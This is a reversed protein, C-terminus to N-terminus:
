QRRSLLEHFINKTESRKTLSDTKEEVTVSIEIWEGFALGLQILEDTEIEVKNGRKNTISSKLVLRGQGSPASLETVYGKIVKISRRVRPRMRSQTHQRGVSSLRSTRVVGSQSYWGLDVDIGSKDLTAVLEEFAALMSPSAELSNGTEAAEVLRILEHMAHDVLSESEDESILVESRQDTDPMEDSSNVSAAEPYVPCLHLVTSGPSIGVLGLQVKTAAARTVVEQLRRVIPDATGVLLVGKPVEEGMLRLTLEEEFNAHPDMEQFAQLQNRRMATDFGDSSLPEEQVLDRMRAEVKAGVRERARQRWDGSM